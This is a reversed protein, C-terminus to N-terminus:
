GFKFLIGILASLAIFLVPHLDKFYRHRMVLFLIIALSLSKWNIFGIWDNAEVLRSLDFLDLWVVSFGSAAILATSAPRLGYFVSEVYNNERFKTLFRGIILIIIISPSVLGITAVIGGIAGGNLHGVYTAMNIGIAGPTSESIAIMDALQEYTYWGTRDAIDYLFPLTALGGGVAFLGAKFFEYYLQLYIM